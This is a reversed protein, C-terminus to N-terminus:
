GMSASYYKKVVDEAYFVEFMQQVMDAVHIMDFFQLSDMNVISRGDSIDQPVSKNLREIAVDFAPKLHREGFQKLLFVFIKQV